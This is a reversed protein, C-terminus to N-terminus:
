FVMDNTYFLRKKKCLIFVIKQTDGIILIEQCKNHIETNKGFRGFFLTSFLDTYIAPRNNANLTDYAKKNLIHLTLCVKVKTLHSIM